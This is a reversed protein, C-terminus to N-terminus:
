FGITVTELDAPTSVHKGVPDILRTYSPDDSSLDIQFDVGVGPGYSYPPDIDDHPSVSPMVFRFQRTFGSLVMPSPPTPEDEAAWIPEDSGLEGPADGTVGSGDLDL